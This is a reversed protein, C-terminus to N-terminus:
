AYDGKLLDSSKVLHLALTTLCLCLTALFLVAYLIGGSTITQEGLCVVSCPSLYWLPKYPFVYRQMMRLGLLSTAAFIGVGSSFKLNCFIVVLCLFSYLLENLLLTLGFMAYPAGVHLVGMPFYVAAKINIVNGGINAQAALRVAPSWENQLTVQGWFLLLFLVEIAVLYVASILVCSLIQGLMWRSRSTRILRLSMGDTLFPADGLLFLLGLVFVIQFFLSSQTFIFLEVAQIQQGSDSLYTRAGGVGIRLVVFLILLTIYPKPSSFLRKLNYSAFHFVSGM